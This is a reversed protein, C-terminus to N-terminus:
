AITMQVVFVVKVILMRMAVQEMQAAKPVFVAAIKALKMATKKAM